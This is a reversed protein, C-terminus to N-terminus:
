HAGVAACYTETALRDRLAALAATDAANQVYTIVTAGDPSAYVDM